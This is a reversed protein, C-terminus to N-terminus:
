SCYFIIEDDKSLSTRRADLEALSIAGELHNRKFKQEDAYACVLLATGSIVKERAEEPSIRPVQKM